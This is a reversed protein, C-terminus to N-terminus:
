KAGAGHESCSWRGDERAARWCCPGDDRSAGTGAAAMEALERIIAALDPRGFAEAMEALQEAEALPRIVSSDPDRWTVHIDVQGNFDALAQRATGWDQMYLTVYGAGDSFDRNLQHSTGGFEGEHRGECWPPCPLVSGASM